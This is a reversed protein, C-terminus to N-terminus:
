CENCFLKGGAADSSVLSGIVDNFFVYFVILCMTWSTSPYSRLPGYTKGFLNCGMKQWTLLIEGIWTYYMLTIWIIWSVISYEWYWESFIYLFMMQIHIVDIRYYILVQVGAKSSFPWRFLIYFSLNHQKIKLFFVTHGSTCFDSM